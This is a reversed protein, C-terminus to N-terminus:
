IRVSSLRDICCDDYKKAVLGCFHFEGGDLGVVRLEM